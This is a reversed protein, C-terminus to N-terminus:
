RRGISIVERVVETWLTESLHYLDSQNPLQGDKRKIFTRFDSGSELGVEYDTNKLREITFTKHEGNYTLFKLTNTAIAWKSGDVTVELPSYSCSESIATISSRLHAEEGKCFVAVTNFAKFSDSSFNECGKPWALTGSVCKSQSNDFAFMLREAGQSPASFLTAVFAGAILRIFM